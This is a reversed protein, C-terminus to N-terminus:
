ASFVKPYVFASLTGPASKIDRWSTIDFDLVAMASTPYKSAIDELVAKEGFDALSNALFAISPNHGVVMLTSVNSEVSEIVSLIGEPSVNYLERMSRTQTNGTYAKVIDWTQSTRVAASVLAVEPRFRQSAIYGGMMTADERGKAALPRDFDEYEASHTAKAHRMLMLRM